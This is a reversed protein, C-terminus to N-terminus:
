QNKIELFNFLPAMQEEYTMNDWDKAKTNNVMNKAGLDIKETQIVLIPRLDLNDNDSSMFEISAKNANNGSLRLRFGKNSNENCIWTQVVSKPLPLAVWGPRNSSSANLVSGFLVSYEDTGAFPGVWSGSNGGSGFSWPNIGDPSPWIATGEFFMDDSDNYFGFRFYLDDPTTTTYGDVYVYVIAQNVYFAEDCTQGVDVLQDTILSSIGDFRMLGFREAGPNGGEYSIIVTQGNKAAAGGDDVIFSDELGSYGKFGDQFYFDVNPKDEGDMGNQGDAGAPGQAGQAGAPGAPGAPGREGDDGTCSVLTMAMGLMALSVLKIAKM